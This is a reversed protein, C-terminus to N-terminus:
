IRTRAELHQHRKVWLAGPVRRDSLNASVIVPGSQTSATHPGQTLGEGSVSDARLEWREAETEREAFCQGLQAWRVTSLCVHLLNVITFVPVFSAGCGVWTLPPLVWKISSARLSRALKPRPSILAEWVAGMHERHPFEGATQSGLLPWCARGEAQPGKSGGGVRIALAERPGHAPIDLFRACGPKVQVPPRPDQGLGWGWGVGCGWGGLGGIFCIPLVWCAWHHCGLHYMM